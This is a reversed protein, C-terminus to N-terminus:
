SSEDYYNALQNCQIKSIFWQGVHDRLTHCETSLASFRQSSPFGLAQPGTTGESTESGGQTSVSLLTHAM